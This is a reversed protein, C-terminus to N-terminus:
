GTEGLYLKINDDWRRNHRGFTRKGERKVVFMKPIELRGM